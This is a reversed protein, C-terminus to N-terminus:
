QEDAVAKELAAFLERACESVNIMSFVRPASALFELKAESGFFLTYRPREENPSVSAYMDGNADSEKAGHRHPSQRVISAALEAAYRPAQGLSELELAILMELAHAPTYSIAQGSGPEPLKPFGLHRLHLLRARLAATKGPAISQVKVLAAEVHKRRIGSFHPKKGAM